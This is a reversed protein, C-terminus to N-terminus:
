PMKKPHLVNGMSNLKYDVISDDFRYSYIQGDPMIVYYPEGEKVPFKSLDENEKKAKAVLELEKIVKLIEESTTEENIQIQM